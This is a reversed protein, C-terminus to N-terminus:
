GAAAFEAMREEAPPTSGGFIPIEAWFATQYAGAVWGATSTMSSRVALGEPDALFKDAVAGSAAFDDAESIFAMTGTAQGAVVATLV